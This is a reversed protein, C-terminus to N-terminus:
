IEILVTNIRGKMKKREKGEERERGEERKEKEKGKKKRGERKGERKKREKGRKGEKEKEKGKGERGSKKRGKGIKQHPPCDTGQGGGGGGWQSRGQLNMRKNTLEVICYICAEPGIFYM